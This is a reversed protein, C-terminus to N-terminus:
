LNKVKGFPYIKDGVVLVDFNSIDKLYPSLLKERLIDTGETLLFLSPMVVLKKRKYSGVLFCKYKEVRGTEALSVAPHEHAIIITKIKKPIKHIKHGHTIFIDDIIVYDKIELNKKKALPGLITDHNGRILIIKKSNKELFNWLKLTDNWEQESIAGFEHKIDGNFIVTEVEVKSFIDKIRKMMDKFYTKPIFIGKKIMDQEYGIHADALIVTKHKPLYVALDILEIDKILKMNGSSM